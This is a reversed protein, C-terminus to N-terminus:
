RKSGSSRLIGNGYKTFPDVEGNGYNDSADRVDGLTMAGVYGPMMSGKYGIDGQIQPNRFSLNLMVRTSADDDENTSKNAAGCHLVRADFLVADGKQLLSLRCDAARLQEDKKEMDGSEFTRIASKSHSKMLFSTPGMAESVDQLALFIVFLPAVKKWPLDPHIMQRNSGPNTIIAALEYFEGQDTV